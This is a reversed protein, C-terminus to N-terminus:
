STGRAPAQLQRDLQPLLEDLATGASRATSLRIADPWRDADSAMRDAVQPDSDSADETRAILRARRLTSPAQCEVGIFEAHARTASSAALARLRAQTWSADLVVTEGFGLLDSASQILELYTHDTHKDNYIGHRYAGTAPIRPSIGAMEKRIHDSSLLVAGLRDALLGAVTSKGTAPLGGILILRVRGARLHKLALATYTRAADRAAVDGHTGGLCSIKARVFARYALYHHLLAPPVPDGAYEAYRDVLLAALEDAGLHELDMALFAIDDLGDVYRLRDDFELCDLIRPGDPLCFIDDCILDGHGDVIRGDAIRRDFLSERGALFDEALHEVENADGSDPVDGRLARVQRLNARWRSRVADRRGESDIDPARRSAAHLSAVMRALRVVVGALPHSAAVLATLRREDPLRRMVVVPEGVAGDVGSLTAVGRYVDPALRRNLEVERRCAEERQSRSRFDLFGLDVPKKVKLACDGILVVVGSHTERVDAHRVVPAMPPGGEAGDQTM